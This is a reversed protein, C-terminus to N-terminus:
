WGGGGEKGNMERLLGEVVRRTGKMWQLGWRAVNDVRRGEPAMQPM